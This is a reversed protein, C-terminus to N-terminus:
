ATIKHFFIKKMHNGFDHVSMIETSFLNKVRREVQINVEVFGRHVKSSCKNEAITFEFGSFGIMDMCQTPEWVNLRLLTFTYAELQDIGSRM